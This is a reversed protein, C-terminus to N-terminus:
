VDTLWSSSRGLPCHLCMNKEAAPDGLCWAVNFRRRACVSSIVISVPKMTSSFMRLSPKCVTDNALTRLALEVFTRRTSPCQGQSEGRTCACYQRCLARCTRSSRVEDFPYREPTATAHHQDDSVVIGYGCRRRAHQRSAPSTRVWSAAFVVM